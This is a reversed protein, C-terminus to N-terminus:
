SCSFLKRIGRKKPRKENLLQEIMLEKESLRENLMIIEKDMEKIKIEEFHSQEEGNEVEKELKLNCDELRSCERELKEMKIELLDHSIKKQDEDALFKNHIEANEDILESVRGILQQNEKSSKEHICRLNEAEEKLEALECIMMKEKEIHSEKWSEVETEKREMGKVKKAYRETEIKYSAEMAGYVADNVVLKAKLHLEMEQLEKKMEVHDEHYKSVERQLREIKLVKKAMEVSYEAKIKKIEEEWRVENKKMQEEKIVLEEELSRRVKCVGQLQHALFVKKSELIECKEKSAKVEEASEEIKAKQDEVQKKLSELEEIKEQFRKEDLDERMQINQKQMIANEKRLSEIKLVKKLMEANHEEEIKKAAEMNKAELDELQVERFNLEDELIEKSESLEYVHFALLSSHGEFMKWKQKAVELQESNDQILVRQDEIKAKLAQLESVLKANEEKLAYCEVKSVDKEQIEIGSDQEKISVMSRSKNSVNQSKSANELQSYCSNRLLDQIKAYKTPSSVNRQLALLALERQTEAQCRAM